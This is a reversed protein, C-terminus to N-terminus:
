DKTQLFKDAIKAVRSQGRVVIKSNKFVTFNYNLSELENICKKVNEKSKFWFYHPFAVLVNCNDFYIKIFKLTYLVSGRSRGGIILKVKNANGRINFSEKEKFDKMLQNHINLNKIGIIISTPTTIWFAIYFVFGFVDWFHKLSLNSISFIMGFCIIFGLIGFILFVMGDTLLYQKSIAFKEFLSGNYFDGIENKNKYGDVISNLKIAVKCLGELTIDVDQVKEKDNFIQLEKTGISYKSSTYIKYKIYNKYIDIILVFGFYKYSLCVKKIKLEINIDTLGLKKSKLKQIFDYTYNKNSAVIYLKSYNCTSIKNKM